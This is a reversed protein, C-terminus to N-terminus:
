VKVFPHVGRGGHRKALHADGGDARGEDGQKGLRLKQPPM